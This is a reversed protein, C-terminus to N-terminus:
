VQYMYGVDRPHVTKYLISDLCRTMSTRYGYFGNTHISYSRESNSFAAKNAEQLLQGFWKHLAQHLDQLNATRRGLLNRESKM